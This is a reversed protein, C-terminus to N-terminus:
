CKRNNSSSKTIFISKLLKFKREYGTQYMIATITFIPINFFAQWYSSQWAQPTQGIYHIMFVVLTAIITPVIGATIVSLFSNKIGYVLREVLKTNYSAMFFNFLFQKLFAFFAHALGFKYNIYFVISGTILGAITGMKINFRQHTIKKLNFFRKKILKKM